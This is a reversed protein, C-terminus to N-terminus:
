RFPKYFKINALDLMYRDGPTDGYAYINSYQELDFQHNIRRVKEQGHCNLGSIKGTIKNNAVVLKTAVCSLNLEDCWGRLWNEPSASVVVVDAGAEKLKNIEVLAKPRILSPLKERIFLDCHRQFVDADMGGFFFTLMMEKAKQNSITKLKYLAIIPAHLSFGVYFMTDGKV